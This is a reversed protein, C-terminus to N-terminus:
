EQYEYRQDDDVDAAVRPKPRGMDLPPVPVVTIVYDKRLLWCEIIQISRERMEVRLECPHTKVDPWM